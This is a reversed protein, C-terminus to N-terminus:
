FLDLNDGVGRLRLAVLEGAERSTRCVQQSRPRRIKDYAKFAFAAEEPKEVLAMLSSLVYADEIAQGAGQGQFPTSAHAGDGLVVVNGKFYTKAPNRFVLPLPNVFSKSILFLKVWM